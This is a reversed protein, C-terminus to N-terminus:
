YEPTHAKFLCGEPVLFQKVEASIINPDQFQRSTLWVKLICFGKKPSITIGTVNDVFTKNESLTGGALAFSAVKWANFIAQEGALKYSFFGGQRNREDEWTPNVGNKMIFLMCNQVFIPPLSLTLTIMEEVTFITLIEVYSALSWDTDHPLHAVMKLHNRIEHHGDHPACCISPKKQLPTGKSGSGAGAGAGGGGGGGGCSFGSSGKSSPSPRKKSVETWGDM